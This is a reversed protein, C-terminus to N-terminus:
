VPKNTKTETVTVDVYGKKDVDYGMYEYSIHQLHKYNDEPTFGLECLADCVFKDVVAGVNAVDRNLRDPLYIGYHIIYTPFYFDLELESIIKKMKKKVGNYQQHHMTHINNLNLWITKKKRVGVDISMPVRFCVTNAKSMVLHEMQETDM